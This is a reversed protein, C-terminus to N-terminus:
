AYRVVSSSSLLFCSPCSYVAVRTSPTRVENEDCARALCIDIVTDNRAFVCRAISRFVNIMPFCNDHTICVDVTDFPCCTRKAFVPM